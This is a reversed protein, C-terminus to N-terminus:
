KPLAQKSLENINQDPGFPRLYFQQRYFQWPLRHEAKTLGKENWSNDGGVGIQRKDINLTIFDAPRIDRGHKNKNPQFYLDRNALQLASGSFTPEGKILLGYGAENSLSMWRVDQKNGTEQPRAYPHYQSWVSAGYHGIPASLYRDAYSEHPGRGFWQLQDFEQPLTMSMGFRLLDRGNEQIPRLTSTLQIDGSGFVRYHTQYSFRNGNNRSVWIDVTKSDNQEVKITATKDFKAPANKWQKSTIHLKGGIDNDTLPRWFNAELPSRIMQVQDYTLSSLMGSNKDLILQFRAASVKIEDQGELLQVDEMAQIDLVAKDSHWPLNFQQWAVLHQEPLLPNALHNAHAQVMLFYESGANINIKPLDLKVKVKGGAGIAAVAFKGEAIDLGDESLQWSFDLDTSDNFDRLNRISIENNMLDVASIALPQFVKKMEWAHPNPTRDAQLIGNALFNGRLPKKPPTSGDVQQPGFDGGYAFFHSGDSRQQLLGQDLWDWIFGGQAMPYKNIVDWHQQFGGLSNGMAHAYESHILPKQPDGRLYQETEEPSRYFPVYIDTYDVLGAAQYQVPRTPDRQKTWDYMDKFAQGGSAENGLSWIIISPHNKDREVMAQMRTMHAKNWEPLSGLAVRKNMYGHSEINAEDVLYLGYQDALKYWYPDNPYHSTRVANVNFQKLLAIDQEMSEKSIVRGTNMDHEHRNVGRLTVAKGNVLLQEAKLEVTRFGLHDNISALQNQQNDYLEITLQYLHPSEASWPLVGTINEDISLQSNQETAAFDIDRRYQALAVNDKGLSVVLEGQFSQSLHNSLDVDLQLRGNQYNDELGARVFYDRVRVKPTAYLTVDRSIGTLRWADVDELYSGDSFRYVEVSINNSGPKLFATLDFEAPTKSGQSYGVKEGNVWLYFASEVAGFNVFVQQNRWQKPVMFNRRYSGVHNDQSPVNPQQMKFVYGSNVYYPRGYGNLEWNAPVSLEQWQSVDFNNQWFNKPRLEPNESWHFKWNGNLSLHQKSHEHAVYPTVNAHPQERNLQQIDPRNWESITQQPEAAAVLSSVFMLTAYLSFFTSLKKM